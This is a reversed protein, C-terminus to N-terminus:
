KSDTKATSHSIGSAKTITKVVLFGLDGVDYFPKFELGKGFTGSATGVPNALDLSGIRVSMDVAAHSPPEPPADDSSPPPVPAPATSM